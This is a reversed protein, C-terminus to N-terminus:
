SIRVEYRDNGRLIKVKEKWREIDRRGGDDEDVERKRKPPIVELKRKLPMSCIKRSKLLKEGARKLPGVAKQIQKHQQFDKELGTLTGEGLKNLIGQIAHLRHARSADIDNPKEGMIHRRIIPEITDINNYDIEDRVQHPDDEELSSSGSSSRSSPM